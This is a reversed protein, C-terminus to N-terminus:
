RTFLERKAPQHWHRMQQFDFVTLRITVQDILERSRFTLKTVMYMQPKLLRSLRVLQPLQVSVENWLFYEQLCFILTLNFIIRFIFAKCSLFVNQPIRYRDWQQLKNYRQPSRNLRLNM